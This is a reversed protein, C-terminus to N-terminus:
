WGHGIQQRTSFATATRPYLWLDGNTDRAVVDPNGDSNLDALGAFTFNNWGSGIQVATGLSAGTGTGPFMYLTGDPHRAILDPKGDRNFDSVGAFAYGTWGSPFNSVPTLLDHGADGPFLRLTGGPALAVIDANGDSNFDGMGAYTYDKLGSGIYVASTSWGGNGNGPYLWLRGGADAAVLDATGNGNYDGVDAFTYPATALSINGMTGVQTATLAAGNWVHVGSLNGRFFTGHADNALVNGLTFKGTFGSVATHSGRAVPRDDMYLTVAKSAPDYTATIHTWQGIIASGGIVCDNSRTADSTALCFAWQKNSQVYLFFGAHTFGAATPPTTAEWSPTCM